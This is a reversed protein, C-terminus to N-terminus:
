FGNFELCNDGGSSVVYIHGYGVLVNVRCGLNDSIIGDFYQWLFAKRNM